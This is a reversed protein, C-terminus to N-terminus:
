DDVINEVGGAYNVIEYQLIELLRVNYGCHEVLALLVVCHFHGVLTNKHFMAQSPSQNLVSQTVVRWNENECSPGFVAAVHSSSM